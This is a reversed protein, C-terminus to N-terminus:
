RVADPMRLGPIWGLSPRMSRYRQRILELAPQEIAVHLLAAIVLASIITLILAPYEPVGHNELARTIVAGINQHTLYLPYSIAGLAVFPRTGIFGLRNTAFLVFLGIVIAAVVTVEVSQLACPVFICAAILALRLPSPGYKRWRYFMIGAIFFNGFDLCLIRGVSQPLLIGDRILLANVGVLALWVVALPEIRPLLRLCYLVFMLFYFALEVALTWYVPDVAPIHTFNQLMTLNFIAAKLTVAHGPLGFLSVVVFTLLVSAWYVPYLRSFRSVIFDLPHRTRELTMFIVFGSIVFFVQVGYHGYGFGFRLHTNLGFDHIFTGTYHFLVM